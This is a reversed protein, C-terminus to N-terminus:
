QRVAKNLCNTVLSHPPCDDGAPQNRRITERPLDYGWFYQRYVFSRDLGPRTGTEEPHRPHEPLGPCEIAPESSWCRGSM